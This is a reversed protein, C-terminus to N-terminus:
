RAWSGNGLMRFFGYMRDVGTNDLAYPLGAHGGSLELVHTCCEEIFEPDHTVVIQLMGEEKMHRTLTAVERMHRLDLGSTPEDYLIIKRNAAVASAIAVRQKQGGSLSIPHRDIVETLNLSEAISLACDRDKQPMSLLIEELVSETFLQHTVDQMVMYVSDCLTQGKYTEGDIELKVRAKKQLGALCQLFTSKGAGNRGILAIIGHRPLEIEDISLVNGAGKYSFHMDTIRVHALECADASGRHGSEELKIARLGMSRMDQNSMARVEDGSFTREIAGNRVIAMTDVIESLYFIRHEAIIITKGEEKWRTIVRQLQAIAEMDLNSSPEDLVFISPEITSAAACAIRQREGGSLQFVSRDLLEDIELDRSILNIRNIIEERPIGQNECAFALENTTDTTFFQSRPNQFVSGVHQSIRFLETDAVDLDEVYAKGQLSGEHFHPVLGNLLETITTKGSGSEGVLLIVQGREGSLNINHVSAGEDGGDYRFSVNDIKFATNTTM